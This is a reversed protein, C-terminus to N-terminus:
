YIGVKTNTQEWRQSKPNWTYERSIPFQSSSGYSLNNEYKVLAEGQKPPTTLYNERQLYGKEKYKAIRTKILTGLCIVTRKPKEVIKQFVKNRETM